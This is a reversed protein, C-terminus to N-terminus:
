IMKIMKLSVHWELIELSIQTFLSDKIRDAREKTIKGEKVFQETNREIIKKADDKDQESEFQISFYRMLHIM